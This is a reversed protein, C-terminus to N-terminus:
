HRWPCSLSGPRAAGPACPRYGWGAPPAPQARRGSGAWAARQRPPARRRLEPGPAATSGGQLAPRAAILQSSTSQSSASPASSASPTCSSRKTRASPSRVRSHASHCPRRGPSAASPKRAEGQAAPPPPPPACLGPAKTKPGPLCPGPHGSFQSRVLHSQSVQGRPPRICHRLVISPAVFALADEQMELAAKKLVPSRNGLKRFNNIKWKESNSNQFLVQSLGSDGMYRSM